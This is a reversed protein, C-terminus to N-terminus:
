QDKMVLWTVLNLNTENPKEDQTPLILDPKNGLGQVLDKESGCEIEAVAERAMKDYYEKGEETKIEENFVRCLDNLPTDKGIALAEFLGLIRRVSKYSYKVGDEQMHMLYFPHIPNGPSKEAAQNQRMFFIAGPEMDALMSRAAACDAIAHAGLPTNELQEKNQQLFRLLQTLFYDLTLDSMSVSDDLDDLDLIEKQMRKVQENRFNIEQQVAGELNKEELYNDDGTATADALAMRARVRNELNLYVDMDKTPWYNIMHVTRNPSGIRDIRGFRQILRVPNWHIDYNLVADCDQLNQGESICDTAILLDIEPGDLDRGRAAPAFHDLVSEFNTQRDLTTKVVDGAVMGVNLHLEGAIGQLEEWLYDATDKFTTFVLLKHNAQQAKKHLQEKLQQLKGDRRPTIADVSKLAAELKSKDALMYARWRQRDLQGLHYPNIAKRNVLFDEDDVDEEPLTDLIEDEIQKKEYSDIKAVMDDIKQITRRLTLRFADVSSELRKLFNVRMMGILFHERTKQNFSLRKREDELRQKVEEDEVYDSPRYIHFELERIQQNLREYSLRGQKDTPPYVTTLQRQPFDGREEIFETYFSKIQKRSRAISLNGLLHLFDGGLSELLNEKKGNGSEKEWEQFAKQADRVVASINHVRLTDKYAEDEGSSMLHIQNRLDMLSTNVPTASLLLVKTNVGKKVVDEILREYRSKRSEDGDSNRTGSPANRFNHSEDIVVLGHNGWEFQSLDINGSMGKYRGLDTHALWNYSFRDDVLPNNPRAASAQYTRWNNELKKPSLVLVRENRMEFFKIVALATFTKGLGVSDALICGNYRLLRTITSKAGDKQFEYLKRWIATDYFNTDALEGEGRERAELEEKFLEYLTKYYILEPSNEQYARKLVSLVQDKVDEVRHKDNWLEEFWDKTEDCTKPDFSAINIELNPNASAGLGSLTFNSSGVTVSPPKDGELHYMKGHLFNSKQLSRIKVSDRTIWDACRKAILSQTLGGTVGEPDSYVSLGDKALLFGRTPKSDAAINGASKPDGFLFRVELGEKELEDALAQFGYISFYATVLRFMDAGSIQRRLHEVVTAKHNDLLSREM